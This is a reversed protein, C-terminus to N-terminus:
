REWPSFTARGAELAEILGRPFSINGLKASYMNESHEDKWKLISCIHFIRVVRKPPTNRKWSKKSMCCSNRSKELRDILQVMEMAHVRKDEMTGFPFFTVNYVDM